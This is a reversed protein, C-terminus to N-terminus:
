AWDENKASVTYHASGAVAGGSAPGAGCGVAVPWQAPGAVGSSSLRSLKEWKM